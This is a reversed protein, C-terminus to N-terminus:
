TKKEHFVNLIRFDTFNTLKVNMLRKQCSLYIFIGNECISAKTASISIVGCLIIFILKNVNLLKIEIQRM